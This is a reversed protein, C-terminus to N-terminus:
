KGASAEGERKGKMGKSPPSFMRMIINDETTMHPGSEFAGLGGLEGDKGKGIADMRLKTVQLEARECRQELQLNLSELEEITM